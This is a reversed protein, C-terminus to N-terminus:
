PESMWPEGPRSSELRLPLLLTVSGRREVSLRFYKRLASWDTSVEAVGIPSGDEGTIRFITPGDERGAGASTMNVQFQVEGGRLQVGVIPYADEEVWVTGLSKM